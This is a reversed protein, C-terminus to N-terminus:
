LEKGENELDAKIEEVIEHAAIAELSVDNVSLNQVHEAVAEYRKSLEGIQNESLNELNILDNNAGSLAAIIENLKIQITTTDKAQARALVFVMFFTFASSTTTLWLNWNGSFNTSPGVVLWGLIFLSVSILAASGSVWRSLRHSFLELFKYDKRDFIILM